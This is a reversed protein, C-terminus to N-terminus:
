VTRWSLLFLSLFKFVFEKEGVIPSTIKAFQCLRRMCSFHRKSWKQGFTWKKRWKEVKIYFNIKIILEVKKLFLPWLISLISSFYGLFTFFHGLIVRFLGNKAFLIKFLPIQEPWKQGFFPWFTTLFTTVHGSIQGFVANKVFNTL